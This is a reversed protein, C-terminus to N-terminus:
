AHKGGKKRIMSIILLVLPLIAFLLVSANGLTDGLAFTEDVNKPIMATVYIIPLLVYMIRGMKKAKFLDRIGVSACYHTIAFTSFIQMIWIVLLLSEFREFILGQIEFSRVLDLTPWTRTKIGDLSLSGVVMVVTILYVATSIALGWTMAKNSQKPNQMYATIVLMVEYGTYSLLTPKLGKIVPLIGDGLVPRLNGIEFLQNSLLIEMVFIVLTIPLIIEFVRLIVSLGGSILYIGIWMFVMVIAWTPTRELLYMGTVDAMVRIEFAAIVMFYLIMACGLIYAIWRGTIERTFQFVTKEPFRRCLTVLIIGVGTIIMGSVIISIWVDPTGVAKSTTRPLTLIGAGLMYNVIIVVAQTTTIKGQADNM